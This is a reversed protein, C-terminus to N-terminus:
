LTGKVKHKIRKWIEMKNQLEQNNPIYISRQRRIATELSQDFINYLFQEMEDYKNLIYKEDKLAPTRLMEIYMDDDEDIQRIKEVVKELSEYRNVNIFAGGNFVEEVEPNGWYIPVTAAAFSQVIKETTYGCYKNNEFAISFKHKQQFGLKNDVGQPVGINNLYRGGSNVKKYKCLLEFFDKRIPNANGNSVVFSCFETKNFNCEHKRVMLEVDQLYNPNMIYNPINAYRDRFMINDFGIGYDFQNFDPTVNEGTYFIRVCDYKLYEKSYVSCIVYDPEDSLEVQYRQSLVQHISYKLPDFGPWWDLYKIKITKM